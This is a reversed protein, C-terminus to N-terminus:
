KVVVVVAAATVRKEEVGPHPPFAADDPSVLQSVGERSVCM